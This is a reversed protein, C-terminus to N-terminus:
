NSHMLMPAAIYTLYLTFSTLAKEPIMEDSCATFEV